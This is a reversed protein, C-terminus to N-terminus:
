IKRCKGLSKHKPYQLNAKYLAFPDIRLSDCMVLILQGVVEVVKHPLQLSNSNSHGKIGHPQQHEQLPILIMHGEQCNM